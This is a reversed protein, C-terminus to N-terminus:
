KSEVASRLPVLAEVLSIKQKGDVSDLFGKAASWLTDYKDEWDYLSEQLHSVRGELSSIHEQDITEERTRM